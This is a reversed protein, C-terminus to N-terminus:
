RAKGKAKMGLRVLGAIVGQHARALHWGLWRRAAGRCHPSGPPHQGDRPRAPPRYFAGSSEHWSGELGLRCAM